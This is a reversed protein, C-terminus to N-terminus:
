NQQIRMLIKEAINRYERFCVSVAKAHSGTAGDAARLLFMPKKADQAMSMLSPHNMLVAMCNPDDEATAFSSEDRLISIRYLNPITEFLSSSETM